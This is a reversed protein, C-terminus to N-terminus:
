FWWPKFCQTPKWCRLSVMLNTQFSDVPCHVSECYETYMVAAHLWTPDNCFPPGVIVEASLRASIDRLAMYPKFVTWEESDPFSTAFSAIAAAEMRRLLQPLRPTLKRQVIAHHSRNELVLDAGTVSGVLDRELAATAEVVDSPLRSLEELLSHPLVVVPGEARM